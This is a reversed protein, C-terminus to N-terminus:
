QYGGRKRQGEEQKNWIYDGYKQDSLKCSQFGDHLGSFFM